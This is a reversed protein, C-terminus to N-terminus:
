GLAQRCSTVDATTLDSLEAEEDEISAFWKLFLSVDSNGARIKTGLDAPNSSSSSWSYGTLLRKVREGEEGGIRTAPYRCM